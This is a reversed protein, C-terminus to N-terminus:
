EQNFIPPPPFKPLEANTEAMINELIKLAREPILEGPYYSEYLSDVEGIESFGIQLILGRIDNTDRGPRNAKLKMVLLVEAPAILIEVGHNKFVTVWEVEKGAVPFADIRSVETNLWNAPLNLERSVKSIASTIQDTESYKFGLSDIDTTAPRDFYQIALAAGGVIRFTAKTKTAKLEAILASLAGIIDERQMPSKAM